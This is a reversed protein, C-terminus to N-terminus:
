PQQPKNFTLENEWNARVNIVESGEAEYIFTREPQQGQLYRGSDWQQNGNADEILRIKYKNPQIYKFTVINSQAVSREVMKGQETLLEAMVPTDFGSLKLRVEGLQEPNVGKLSLRLTDLPQGNYLAFTHPLVTLAYASSPKWEPAIHYKLPSLSDPQIAIPVPISDPLLLLVAGDPHALQAPYPLTLMLPQNPKVVGNAPVSTSITGAKPKSSPQDSPESQKGRRKTQRRSMICEHCILLVTDANPHLLNREDTKKYRLMVGITDLAFLTTDTIWYRITDGNNDPEGVCWPEIAPEFGLPELSFGGVPRRSFFLSFTHSNPREKNTLRQEAREEAFMRLPPLEPVVTDYPSHMYGRLDIGNIFGIREVGQNYLYDANRDALAVIKYDMPKLNSLHFSGDPQTRAVHQPRTIYPASDSPQAYLMVMIGALPANSFADAVSGHLCLSDISAGTSFAFEFDAYPNGENVDKIADGLYITYTTNDLLTDNLSLVVRKGNVVLSAPRKLPPSVLLKQQYNDLKIFENFTFTLKSGKFNTANPLPTSGTMVPALTDMPGGTPAVVKACQPLLLVSLGVAVLLLAIQKM